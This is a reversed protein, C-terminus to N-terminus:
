FRPMLVKIYCEGFRDGESLIALTYIFSKEDTFAPKFEMNAEGLAYVYALILQHQTNAAVAQKFTYFKSLVFYIIYGLECDGIYLDILNLLHNMEVNSLRDTKNDIRKYIQYLISKIIKKHTYLPLATFFDTKGIKINSEEEIYKLVHNINQDSM